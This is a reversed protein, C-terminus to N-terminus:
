FKFNIMQRMVLVGITMWIGCGALMIQGIQETWLLSIYDPSTFFLLMMVILPLSGIIAASVKAEQSLATIKGKMKKRDRLVKSLNGLAEALNGGSQQQITVVIVFFNTEPLPVREHLRSVSDAVTLGLSQAEIIRMFETKVPEKAEHAIVRLCDNLPLGAKIGRVIVDVADPFANLFKNQRRTKLHGLLWRPFGIAGVLLLAPLVIPPVGSILGILLFVIASVGSFVFFQKKSWKLGAQEIRVHLPPNKAAKKKRDLEKLSQEVQKRKSDHGRALAEAGNRRGPTPGGVRKRRKEARVEGTLHPGIFVWFVGAAAIAAMVVVAVLVLTDSFM